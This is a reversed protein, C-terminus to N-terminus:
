EQRLQQLLPRRLAFHSALICCLIGGVTMSGLVTLLLSYPIATSDERVHPWVALAAAGIGLLLALLFIPLHEGLLITQLQPRRFGSASLLGFEAQRELVNRAILLALAVTSLVLAIGGLASFIQLYTNQVAQLEALRERTPQLALGRNQLQRTLHTSVAEVSSEPTNVLYFRNGATDPFQKLFNSESIILHGQLITGSVFAVLRLKLPSGKADRAEVLDGLGKKLAWMASNQDAVAPIAGDDLTSELVNWGKSGAPTGKWFTLSFTSENLASPNVGLVSPSQAQNLNLCSAEEGDRKRFSVLKTKGLTASELGYTERGTAANLDEYIPLDSTGMLAFGGTAKGSPDDANLHFTHLSAVMFVGAALLGLVALSRGRRRVMNRLGLQWLSRIGQHNRELQNLWDSCLYIGGTLLFVAAGFFVAPQFQRPLSVATPAMGTAVVLFLIGLWFSLSRGKGKPKKQKTVVLADGAILRHPAAQAMKRSIWWVTVFTFGLTMGIGNLLTSTKFEPIFRLGAVAGSWDTELQQLLWGTTRTALWAGLMAGVVAALLSEGMFLIRVRDGTMGLARLLGVQTSRAEVNILFLLASLVLATVILFFSMSLFLSGFDMSGAVAARALEKPQVFAFGLDELHLGAKVQKTTAEISQNFRLSTLNGFRNSWLTQGDNLSIFAKPTARKQQWYTEDIEKIFGQTKMPIGPKWDRCNAADSVGPFDPTWEANIQPHDMPLIGHVTFAASAEELQRARTVIFYDLKVQDGIKLQLQEAMWQNIMMGKAPLDGPIMGSAPSVASIMPYATYNQNSGTASTCLYTLVGKAEPGAAKVVADPLFIRPSALRTTKGDAMTALQLGVDALQWNEPARLFTLLREPAGDPTIASKGLVLNCQGVQEAAQQLEQLPVFLNLTPAQEAKLSFAGFAEDSRVEALAGNLVSTQDSEGSLPADRSILSPKEFRVLLSDGAKVQLQAALAQNIAWGQPAPSPAHALKWFTDEVGILNVQNARKGGGPISVTGSLFLVPAFIANPSAKQANAVVTTALFGEGASVAEDVAGLRLTAQRELTAKVSDGVLLSGVIVWAAVAVGLLLGVHWRWYYILSRTLYQPYSFKV